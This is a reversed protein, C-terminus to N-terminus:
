ENGGRKQVNRQRVETIGLGAAAGLVVLIVNSIGVLCLLFASLMIVYCIRDKLAQKWLKMTASIMIPVVAARIGAMAKMVLPSDVFQNYALTILIIVLFPWFAIGLLAAFGGIPGAVHYGFLFSVNGIMTGPLSRGVSTIDLLEEDTIMKEKEVFEKQMQAVISWGGGFTFLGIKFYFLFLKAARRCNEKWM